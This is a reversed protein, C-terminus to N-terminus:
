CPTTRECFFPTQDLLRKAIPMAFAKKGGRPRRQADQNSEPIRM